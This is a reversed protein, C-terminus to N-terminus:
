VEPRCFESIPLMIVFRTEGPLSSVIITGLFLKQIIQRSMHLGIGSGKLSGKTTFYPDFIKTQIAPDIGPGNDFVCIRLHGGGPPYEFEIHIQKKEQDLSELADKANNILNLLVQSIATAIQLRHITDSNWTIELAITNAELTPTIIRHLEYVIQHLPLLKTPAKNQFFSRFDEITESLHLTNQEITEFAHDLTEDDLRGTAKALKASLLTLNITNLPQRWQHSINSLMEGMLAFREQEFLLMDKERNKEIEDHLASKYTELRMVLKIVIALIPPTMLLPMLISFGLIVPPLTGTLLTYFIGVCLVSVVTTALTVGAVIKLPSHMGLKDIFRNLHKM